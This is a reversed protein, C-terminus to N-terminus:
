KGPKGTKRCETRYKGSITKRVKLDDMAGNLLTDIYGQIAFIPTKFEHSVIRYFSKGSLKTKAYCNSKKRKNTAGDRWMKTYKM